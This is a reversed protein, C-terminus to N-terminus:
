YWKIMLSCLYITMFNKQDIKMNQSSALVLEQYHIWFYCIWCSLYVAAYHTCLVGTRLLQLIQFLASWATVYPVMTLSIGCYQNVFEYIYVVSNDQLFSIYINTSRSSIKFVKWDILKVIFYLIMWRKCEICQDLVTKLGPLNIM